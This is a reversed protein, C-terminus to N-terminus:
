GFLLTRNDTIEFFSHIVERTKGYCAERAEEVDRNKAYAKEYAQRIETGVNVKCIGNKIGELIYDKNIGSGGHLVLPLGTAERLKKIQEIDLKAEPKKQDKLGEAVAGHISGVAVSLWDCGSEKAFRRAQEVDTFGQKSAFIEEYPPMEKSEHGMVSGLEAELPIGAGRALGAAEATAAINGALDLRSADIMASQYGAAAARKLIPMYEVTLYDEDIVPVHDLHLLTYEENKYRAYEEAVAELSQSEFKEWEVRAVQVM